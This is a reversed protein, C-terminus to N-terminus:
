CAYGPSGGPRCILAAGLSVLGLVANIWGVLARYPRIIFALLAALVPPLLLFLFTM